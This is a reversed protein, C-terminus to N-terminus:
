GLYLLARVLKRVGLEGLNKGHEAFTRRHPQDAAHHVLADIGDRLQQGM